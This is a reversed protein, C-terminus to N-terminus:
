DATLRSRRSFRLLVEEFADVNVDFPYKEEEWKACESELQPERQRWDLLSTILAGLEESNGPEFLFRSMSGSFIEPLAGIRSAIVPRGTKTGEIAIRGFGEELLTPFVVLDAAHLFPVVDDQRPFWRFTDPQLKQLRINFEPKLAPDPSGVLVLLAQDAKLQLEVWADLITGVGKEETMRGYCVVIPVDAPLGLRQRAADREELGGRPYEDKPLSNNVVCIKHPNVGVDIWADRMFNSVAVFQAVHHRLTSAGIPHPM